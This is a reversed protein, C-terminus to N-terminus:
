WIGMKEGELILTEVERRSNEGRPLRHECVCHMTKRNPSLPKAPSSLHSRLSPLLNTFRRTLWSTAYASIFMFCPKPLVSKAYIILLSLVFFDGRSLPEHLGHSVKETDAERELQSRPQVM